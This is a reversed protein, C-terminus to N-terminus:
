TTSCPGTSTPRSDFHRYILVRTVGAEAAVDDLSAAAFGDRAFARAAASILAQRREPRRLLKPRRENSAM